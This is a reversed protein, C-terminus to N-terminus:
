LAIEPGVLVLTMESIGSEITHCRPSFLMYDVRNKTTLPIVKDIGEDRVIWTRPTLSVSFKPDNLTNAGIIMDYGNIEHAILFSAQIHIDKGYIDECVMNLTTSGMINNALSGGAVHMVLNTPRCPYKHQIKNYFSVSILNNTSGTDLLPFIRIGEIKVPMLNLDRRFESSVINMTTLKEKNEKTKKKRNKYAMIEEDLYEIYEESPELNEKVLDRM